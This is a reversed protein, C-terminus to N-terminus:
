PKKFQEVMYSLKDVSRALTAQTEANKNIADVIEGTQRTQYVQWAELKVIRTERQLAFVAMGAVMSLIMLINGLSITPDIKPRLSM